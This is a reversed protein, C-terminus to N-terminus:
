DIRPTPAAPGSLAHEQQVVELPAGGISLMGPRLELRRLQATPRLRDSQFRLLAVPNGKHRYWTIDIKNNRSLETIQDLFFQASIPLAGARRALIELAVVNVEKPVLWLRFDISILSSWLGSGYRFALRLRDPEIALRPSSISHEELQVAVNGCQFHEEFFSNIQQATFNYNWERRKHHRGEDRFHDCFSVFDIVVNDALHRREKGSVVYVRRYFAPEHYLLSVLVAGAVAVAVISLITWFVLKRRRM